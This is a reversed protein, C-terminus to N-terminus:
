CELEKALLREAKQEAERSRSYQSFLISQQRKKRAIFGLLAEVKSPYAYKNIYHDMVPKLGWNGQSDYAMIKCGRPTVHEVMYSICYLEM